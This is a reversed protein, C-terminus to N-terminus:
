YLTTGETLLKTNKANPTTTISPEDISVAYVKYTIRDAPLTKYVFTFKIPNNNNTAEVKGTQAMPNISSGEITYLLYKVKSSDFTTIEFGLELTTYGNTPQLSQYVNGLVMNTFSTQPTTTTTKEDDNSSCAVTAITLFSILILKSINKM